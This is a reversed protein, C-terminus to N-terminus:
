YFLHKRSFGKFGQSFGSSRSGPVTRSVTKNLGDKRKEKRGAKQGAHASLLLPQHQTTPCACCWQPKGKAQPFRASFTQLVLLSATSVAQKKMQALREHKQQTQGSNKRPFPCFHRKIQKCQYKLARSDGAHLTMQLCVTDSPLLFTNKKLGQASKYDPKRDSRQM